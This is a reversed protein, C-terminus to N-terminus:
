SETRPRGAARQHCADCTNIDYTASVRIGPTTGTAPNNCTPFWCLRAAKKAADREAARMVKAATTDVWIVHGNLTAKWQTRTERFSNSYTEREVVYGDPSAYRGASTKTWNM